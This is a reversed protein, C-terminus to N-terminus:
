SVASPSTLATRVKRVIKYKKKIQKKYKYRINWFKMQIEYKPTFINASHVNEQCNQEPLEELAAM